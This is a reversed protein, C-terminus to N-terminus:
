IEFDLDAPVHVCTRNLDLDLVGTRCSHYNPRCFDIGTEQLTACLIIVFSQLYLKGLALYENLLPISGLISYSGTKYLFLVSWFVCYYM